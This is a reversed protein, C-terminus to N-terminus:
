MCNLFVFSSLHPGQARGKLLWCMVPLWSVLKRGRGVWRHNPKRDAGAWGQEPIADSLVWDQNCPDTAPVPMRPFTM